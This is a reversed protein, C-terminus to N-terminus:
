VLCHLTLLISPYISPPLLPPPPMPVACARESECMCVCVSWEEWPTRAEDVGGREPDRLGCKSPAICHFPSERSGGGLWWMCVWGWIRESKHEVNSCTVASQLVGEAAHYPGPAFHLLTSSHVCFSSNWCNSLDCWDILPNDQLMVNIKCVIQNM